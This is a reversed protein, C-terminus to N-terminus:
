YGSVILGDVALGREALLFDLHGALAQGADARESVSLAAREARLRMREARRWRAVDIAQPDVAHPDSCSPDLEHALCPPSAYGRSSRSDSMDNGRTGRQGEMGSEWM